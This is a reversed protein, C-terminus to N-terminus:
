KSKKNKKKLIKNEKIYININDKIKKYDNKINEMKTIVEKLKSMFDNLKELKKDLEKEQLINLLNIDSNIIENTQNKRKNIEYNGQENINKIIDLINKYFQLMEEKNIDRKNRLENQINQIGKRYEIEKYKSLSDIINTNYLNNAKELFLKKQKIVEKKENKYAKLQSIDINKMKYFEKKSVYTSIGKYKIEISNKGLNLNQINNGLILSESLSNKIPKKFSYNEKKIGSPTFFRKIKERNILNNKLIFNQPKIRNKPLM